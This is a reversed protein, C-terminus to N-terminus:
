VQRFHMHSQRVHDFFSTVGIVNEKCGAAVCHFHTRSHFHRNLERTPLFSLVRHMLAPVQRCFDLRCLAVAFGRVCLACEEQWQRRAARLGALFQRNEDADDPHRERGRRVYMCRITTNFQETTIRLDSLDPDAAWLERRPVGAHFLRLQVEDLNAIQDALSERMLSQGDAGSAPRM